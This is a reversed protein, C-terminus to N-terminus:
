AELSFAANQSGLWKYIANAAARAAPSKRGNTTTQSYNDSVFKEVAAQNAIKADSADAEVATTWEKGASDLYKTIETAM